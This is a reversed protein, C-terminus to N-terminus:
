CGCNVFDMTQIVPPFRLNITHVICSSLAGVVEAADLINYRMLDLLEDDALGLAAVYKIGMSKQEPRYHTEAIVSSNLLDAKNPAPM